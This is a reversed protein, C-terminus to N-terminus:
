GQGFSGTPFGREQSKPTIKPPTKVGGLCSIMSQPANQSTKTEADRGFMQKPVKEVAEVCLSLPLRIVTAQYWITTNCRIRHVPKDIHCAIPM